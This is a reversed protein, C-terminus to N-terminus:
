TRFEITPSLIKSRFNGAEKHYPKFDRYCLFTDLKFFVVEKVVGLSASLKSLCAHSPSQKM